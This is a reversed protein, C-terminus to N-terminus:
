AAVEKKLSVYKFTYGKHRPLTGNLVRRVNTPQGHIHRSVESANKFIEGTEIIQVGITPDAAKRVFGKYELNDVHNNNSDGDKHIVRRGEKWGPLFHKAVLRHVYHTYGIGLYYLNVRMFKNKHSNPELYWDFLTNRVNGRNSIEYEGFDEIEKWVELSM